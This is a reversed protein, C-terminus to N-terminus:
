FDIRAFGGALLCGGQAGSIMFFDLSSKVMLMVSIDIKERCLNCM